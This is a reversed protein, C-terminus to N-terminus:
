ECMLSYTYFEEERKFGNKEYLKQASLNDPATQLSLSSANTEKCFQMAQNMLMQAVGQKRAEELVFLDNLIWARKMSISSFTPYLQVFGLFQEGQQVAFIMSDQNELREKIFLGADRRNSEKGYFMRYENFLEAIGDRDKIAAEIIKM